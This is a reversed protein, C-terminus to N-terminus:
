RQFFLKRHKHDYRVLIVGIVIWVAANVLGVGLIVAVTPLPLRRLVPINGHYRALQSKFTQPDGSPDM